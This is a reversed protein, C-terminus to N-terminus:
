AVAEIPAVQEELAAQSDSDVEPPSLATSNPLTMLLLRHTNERGTLM